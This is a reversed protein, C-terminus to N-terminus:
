SALSRIDPLFSIVKNAPEETDYDDTIRIRQHLYGKPEYYAFTYQEIMEDQDDPLTIPRYSTGVIRMPDPAWGKVEVPRGDEIRASWLRWQESPPSIPSAELPLGLIRIQCYVVGEGVVTDEISAEFSYFQTRLSALQQELEVQGALRPSIGLVMRATSGAVSRTKRGATEIISRFLDEVARRGTAPGSEVDDGDLGKLYRGVHESRGTAGLYVMVERGERTRAILSAAELDSLMHSLYSENVGLTQRLEARRMRHESARRLEAVAASANGGWSRLVALEAASSSPAAAAKLAISIGSVIRHARPQEKSLREGSHGALLTALAVAAQTLESRTGLRILRVGESAILNAIQLVRAPVATSESPNDRDLDIAAVLEPMSAPLLSLVDSSTPPQRSTPM